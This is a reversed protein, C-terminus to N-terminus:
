SLVSPPTTEAVLVADHIPPLRHQLASLSRLASASIPPPPSVQGGENGRPSAAPLPDYRVASLRQSPQWYFLSLTGIALAIASIKTM